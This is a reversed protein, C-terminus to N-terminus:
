DGFSSGTITAQVDAPLRDFFPEATAQLDTLAPALHESGEIKEQHSSQPAISRFVAGTFREVQFFFDGLQRNTL